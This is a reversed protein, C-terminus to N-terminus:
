LSFCDLYFWPSCIDTCLQNHERKMEGFNMRSSSITKMRKVSSKVPKNQKVKTKLPQEFLLSAPGIETGDLFGPAPPPVAGFGRM